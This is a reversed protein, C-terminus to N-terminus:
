QQAATDRAAIAELAQPLRRLASTIAAQIAQERVEDGAGGGSITAAGNLMSRLDRGPYTYVTVSVAARLGGDPRVEVSTISAELFCGTLRRRSLISSAEAPRENDPAVAIGQIQGVSSVLFTRTRSLLAPSVTAQAGPSGIGVYFRPTGNSPNTTTAGPNAPRSAAIRELARISRQAASRVGSDRDNLIARLADLASPDGVTELSAAAAIRVSANEDRLADSLARTVNADNQVRALALAAQARVRFQDSSRLMRVLFDTRADAFAAQSIFACLVFALGAWTYRARASLLRANRTGVQGSM